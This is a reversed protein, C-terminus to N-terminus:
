RGGGDEADAERRRRRADQWRDWSAGSQALLDALEDDSIETRGHAQATRVLRILAEAALLASSITM